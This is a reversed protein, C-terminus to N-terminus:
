LQNVLEKAKNKINDGEGFWASNLRTDQSRGRYHDVWETVSNLYQWGTLGQTLDSGMAQGRFLQLIKNYGSHVRKADEPINLLEKTLEVATKPHVELDELQNMDYMFAKFQDLAIGLKDRVLKEDFKSSHRINIVKAKDTMSYNLTNQCVVRVSTFKATTAMSGDYSTALLVYPFVKDAPNKVSEAEGVKALAWIRKGGALAGATEMQFGAAQCLKDFFALVESPQVIQYRDSVIGLHTLRDSRYIVRSNTVYQTIGEFTNNNATYQVVAPVATWDLGAERQWVEIPQNPTLEQGLGHWPTKGVYAMSTKGNITELEHAM